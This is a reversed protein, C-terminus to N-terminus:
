FYLQRLPVQLTKSIRKKEEYGPYIVLFSVPIPRDTAIAGMADGFPYRPRRQRPRFVEDTGGSSSPNAM